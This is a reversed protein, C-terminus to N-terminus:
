VVIAFGEGEGRREMLQELEKCRINAADMQADNIDMIKLMLINKMKQSIVATVM